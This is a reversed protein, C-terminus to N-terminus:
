VSYNSSLQKSHRQELSDWSLDSLLTSSRINLWPIICTMSNPKPDPPSICNFILESKNYMLKHMLGWNFMNEWIEGDGVLKDQQVWDWHIYKPCRHSYMYLQIEFKKSLHLIADQGRSTSHHKSKLVSQFIGKQLWIQLLFYFFCFIMTYQLILKCIELAKLFVLWSRSLFVLL